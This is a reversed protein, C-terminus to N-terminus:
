ETREYGLSRYALYNLLRQRCTLCLAQVSYGFDPFALQTQYHNIKSKDIENYYVRHPKKKQNLRRWARENDFSPFISFNLDKHAFLDFPWVIIAFIQQQLRYRLRQAPFTKLLYHALAWCTFYIVPTGSFTINHQYFYKAKTIRVGKNLRAYYCDCSLTFYEDQKFNTKTYYVSSPIYLSIYM